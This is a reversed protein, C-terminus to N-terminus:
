TVNTTFIGGGSDGLNNVNRKKYRFLHLFDNRFKTGSLIYLFFNIANNTFWTKQSVTYFLSFGAKYETSKNFDVIMNFLFLMYSPTTLVLFSFTVLLLIMFIQTDSTKVRSENTNTSATKLRNRVTHIIFSNMILLAVFPFSFNVVFSLWYYIEGFIIEINTGYPVCDYGMNTSFFIHPINFVIGFVIIFACTKKARNVTNFSSSKHPRIIGYFRDFTMALILLVGRLASTFVTTIRIVCSTHADPPFSM